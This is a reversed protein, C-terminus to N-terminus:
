ACDPLNNYKTFGRVLTHGNPITIGLSDALKLQNLSAHQGEPLKRPFPPIYIPSTPQARKILQDPVESVSKLPEASIRSVAVDVIEATSVVKKRLLLYTIVAAATGIVVVGGIILEKKHNKLWKQEVEENNISKNDM